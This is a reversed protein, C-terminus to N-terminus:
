VGEACVVRDRGESKARYLAEDARHLLTRASEEPQLTVVGASFRCDLQGGGALPLALGHVRERLRLVASRASAPDADDLFLLFEEGGWRTLTDTDRLGERLTTSFACLLADGTAHGHTDNVQKFHDIDLMALSFASGSRQHRRMAKDLLAEARRRNVLGTLADRGALTESRSLAGRLEERQAQLRARIRAMRGALIWVSPVICVMVLFMALEVDAAAQRPWVYLAFLMALALMALAVVSLLGAARASLEFMAFMLPVILIPLAVVRLEGAMPYMLCTFVLVHLIQPLRLAPDPGLSQWGLRLALAILLQGTFSLSAWLAVLETPAGARWGAYCGIVICGAIMLLGIWADRMRRRQAPQAGLWFRWPLPRARGDEAHTSPYASPEADLFAM